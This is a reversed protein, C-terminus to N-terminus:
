IVTRKQSAERSALACGARSSSRAFFSCRLERATRRTAREDLRPIPRSPGATTREKERERERERKREVNGAVCGREASRYILASFLRRRLIPAGKEGLYSQDRMPRAHVRANEGESLASARGSINNYESARRPRRQPSEAAVVISLRRQIAAQFAGRPCLLGITLLEIRAGRPCDKEEGRRVPAPGRPFDIVRRVPPPLPLPPRGLALV